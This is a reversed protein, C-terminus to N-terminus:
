DEEDKIIYPSFEPSFKNETLYKYIRICAWADIAAYQQQAHSLEDAEWNTLRQGKSIKEGFLIAYIKQLSIDNICYDGVLNQLDIFGAPKVKSIHSLMLFDDHLSLGIKKLSSDELYNLLDDPIGIKNLRFLYCEDFTSLQILAVENLVGKHFSPRTESDFGVLNHSRLSAIASNVQSLKDIVYINGPFTVISMKQLNEKDISIKLM